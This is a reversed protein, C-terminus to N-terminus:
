AIKAEDKEIFLLYPYYHLSALDRERGFLSERNEPYGCTKPDANPLKGWFNVDHVLYLSWELFNLDGYGNSYGTQLDEIIYLGPSRLQPWLADFSARTLTGYHSGDDIILDFGGAQAAVAALFEPDGQDGQHITCGPRPPCSGCDIGHIRAHPFYERWMALSYGEAVGIELLTLPEQRRPALYREYHRLYNHVASSKGTGYKLGLADLSMRDPGESM